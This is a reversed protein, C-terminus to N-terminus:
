SMGGLRRDLEAALNVLDAYTVTGSYLPAENGAYDHLWDVLTENEPAPQPTPTGSLTINYDVMDGTQDFSYGHQFTQTVAKEATPELFASLFVQAKGGGYGSLVCKDGHELALFNQGELDICARISFGEPLRPHEQATLAAIADKLDDNTVLVYGTMASKAYSLADRLRKILEKDM